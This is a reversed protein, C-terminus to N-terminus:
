FVRKLEEFMFGLFVLFRSSDCMFESVHLLFLSSEQGVKSMSMKGCRGVQAPRREQALRGSKRASAGLLDRQLQSLDLQRLLGFAAAWASGKACCSIAANFVVEPSLASSSGPPPRVASGIQCVQLWNSPKIESVQQHSKNKVPLFVFVNHKRKLNPWPNFGRM